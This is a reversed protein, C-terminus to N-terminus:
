IENSNLWRFSIIKFRRGLSKNAASSLSALSTANGSSSLAPDTQDIFEPTRQVVAEAYATSDVIGTKSNRSDGYVRIVFTDSRASIAPAIAQVIDQQMLYGPVGIATNWIAGNADVMNDPILNPADLAGSGPTYSDPVSANVTVGASKASANINPSTKDIAAQLAGCRNLASTNSGLRRNLFDALSLFPGRAKVEAVIKSALDNLQTDTLVRLGSWLTNPATQGSASWFRSFAVGKTGGLSTSETSTTGRTANYIKLDSGSLGGLFSKWAPISTSNVNFAGDLVLNAAAKDMDRLDSMSPPNTGGQYYPKIRSNLLPKSPDALTGGSNASNYSKWTTPYTTGAASLSQPPLTSLFFRDFLADNALYSDDCYITRQVSPTTGEIEALANYETPIAPSACSGGVFMSGTGFSGYDGITNYRAASMHMFQGLSVLPQNPIDRLVYRTPTSAVGASEDGFSTEWYTGNPSMNVDTEGNAYLAGMPSIYTEHWPFSFNDDVPSLGAFNGIFIPVAKSGNSYSRVGASSSRLGKQRICFGIIRRPTTLQDIRINSIAGAAAKTDSGGRGMYRNGDSAPWLLSRPVPFTDVSQMRLSPSALAVTISTSPDTTSFATGTSKGASDVGSLVDCYQSTDASINANCKLSSFTIAQQPNATGLDADLAFVRTEGPELTNCDGSKTLLTFRGGGSAPAQNVMFYPVTTTTGGSKATIKICTVSPTSANYTGMSDFAGVNRQFQYNALSLRASHPNHLVVQPYYSLRLMWNGKDDRYSSLAIDMRYSIVNPVLLSTRVNASESVSFISESAVNPLISPNGSTTPAVAGGSATMGGPLPMTAKYSNYHSYLSYWSVGDVPPNGGTQNVSAYYTPAAGTAPPSVALGASDATRYLMNNRYGYTSSLTTFASPSEFAATLDKRLGGRRADALVGFGYTTFDPAIQASNSSSLSPILNALSQLTTIKPLNNTDLRLDTTGFIASGKTPLNAQPTFFHFQNKSPDTALDIMTPDNMTVKAKVGEDSVWYAYGGLNTKTAGISYTNTMIVLPVRVKQYEANTGYNLALVVSNTLGTSTDLWEIPNVVESNQSGSVLWTATASKQAATPNLAGLSTTRQPTSGVDLANTGTKWVGTWYPQNMAGGGSLIDATATVRQDPGAASQLQAMAVGLAFLANQRAIEEKASNSVAKREIQSISSTTVILVTALAILLLVAVLVFGHQQRSHGSSATGLPKGNKPTRVPDQRLPMLNSFFLPLM